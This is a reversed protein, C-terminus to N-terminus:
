PPVRALTGKPLWVEIGAPIAVAGESGRRTWAPNIARLEALPVRFRRAIATATMPEDLVYRDHDLPPSPVFGEPLWPDLDRALDRAAVFSAYFNRSAFGFAKGDFDSVIRDFDNGHKEKARRMGAIGHNYSTVALPWSLLEAHARALYRSAGRAAAVPDLREDVAPHIRLFVKGAGLTFQWMGVAGASSRADARFSSEVHPLFALDEPLGSERFIRRFEDLYRGSTEIGQLFRERLGRQSRVRESAGEIASAGAVTAIRLVLAKEEDDLLADNRVKAEIARLRVALGERRARVWERQSESYTDKVSGPLELVEYVLGLHRKDHLAVQSLRWEAWVRKWFAVADALAAPVPFPDEIEEGAIESHGDVIEPTETEVASAGTAVLAALLAAMTRTM